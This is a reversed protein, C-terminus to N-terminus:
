RVALGGVWHAHALLPVRHAGATHLALIAIQLGDIVRGVGRRCWRVIRVVPHAAPTRLVTEGVHLQRRRWRLEHEVITCLMIDMCPPEEIPAGPPLAWKRLVWREHAACLREFERRDFDLRTLFPLVRRASCVATPHEGPVFPLLKATM